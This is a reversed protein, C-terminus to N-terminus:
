GNAPLKKVFDAGFEAKTKQRNYSLTLLETAASARWPDVDRLEPWGVTRVTELAHIMKRV